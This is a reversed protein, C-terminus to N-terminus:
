ECITNQCNKDEYVYKLEDKKKYYSQLKAPKKLWADMQPKVPQMDNIPKKPRMVSTQCNKDAQCKKDTYMKSEYYETFKKDDEQSVQKKSKKTMRHQILMAQGNSWIDKIPKKPWMDCKEAQCYKVDCM